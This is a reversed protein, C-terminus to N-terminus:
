KPRRFFRNMTRHYASDSPKHGVRTVRDDSGTVVDVQVFQDVWCLAEGSGAPQRPLVLVPPGLLEEVQRRTMGPSILKMRDGLTERSIVVYATVTALLSVALSLAILLRRRSFHGMVVGEVLKGVTFSFKRGIREATPTSELAPHVPRVRARVSQLFCFHFM